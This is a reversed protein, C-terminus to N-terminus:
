EGFEVLPACKGNACVSLGCCDSDTRCPGCAGAVCATGGSCSGCTTCLNKTPRPADCNGGSDVVARDYIFSAFAGGVMESAVISGWAVVGVTAQVSAHPAYLNGVWTGVLNIPESGAVWLRGAAPREQKALSVIGRIYVNQKVFVDVEAGPALDFALAGSLDISGDVFLASLGSVHIV